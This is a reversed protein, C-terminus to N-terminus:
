LLTVSIVVFNIIMRVDNYRSRSISIMQSVDHPLRADHDSQVVVEIEVIRLM